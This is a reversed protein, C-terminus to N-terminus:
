SQQSLLWMEVAKLDFKRKGNIKLVCGEPIKKRYIWDYITKKPIKLMSSLENIEIAHALKEFISTQKLEVSSEPTNGTFLKM